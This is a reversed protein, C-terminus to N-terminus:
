LVLELDLEFGLGYELKKVLKDDLKEALEHEM